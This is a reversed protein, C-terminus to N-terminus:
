AGDPRSGLVIEFEIEEGNRVVKVIVEDGARYFRMMASLQNMTSLPHGDFEIIVDEALAGAAGFVSDSIIDDEESGDLIRFIRVGGPTTAGDDLEIYATAALIGLFPHDIAGYQILDDAINIVLNIPIAFGLGEATEGVSKAATIGILRGEADVLAGGSSGGSIPADTQILGVLPSTRGEINLQRNFASIIGVSVSPGGELGLPNGVAIAQDGIAIEGMDGLRIPPVLGPAVKIVAIDTLPDRGVLEAKYIRGDYLVVEILDADEIVHNNTLIHGQNSLGIGSGTGFPELLDGEPGDAATTVSAIVQVVSPVVEAVIEGLESDFQQSTPIQVPDVTPPETVVQMAPEFDELAEDVLAQARETVRDELLDTGLLGAATGGAGVILALLGVLVLDM